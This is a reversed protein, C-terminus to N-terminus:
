EPQSLRNSAMLFRLVDAESADPIPHTEREYKVVIDALADLYDKTDEDLDSVLLAEIVAHAAALEEDSRIARLPFARILKMYRSSVPRIGVSPRTTTTAM